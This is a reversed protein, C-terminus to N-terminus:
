GHKISESEPQAKGQLHDSIRQLARVDMMHTKGNVLRWLSTYRVGCLRAVASLNRDKLQSILEDLTLM